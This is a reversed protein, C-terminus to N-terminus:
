TKQPGMSYLQRIIKMKKAWQKDFDDMAKLCLEVTDYGVKNGNTALFPLRGELYKIAMEIKNHIQTIQEFCKLHLSIKPNDALAQKETLYTSECWFCKTM